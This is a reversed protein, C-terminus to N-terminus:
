REVDTNVISIITGIVRIIISIIFLPFIFRLIWSISELDLFPIKLAPLMNRGNIFMVDIPRLAEGECSNNVLIDMSILAVTFWHGCNIARWLTKNGADM